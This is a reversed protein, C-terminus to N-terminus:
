TTKKTKLEHYLKDTNQKYLFYQITAVTNLGVSLIMGTLMATDWGVEVVTTGIRAVGGLLNSGTTIISQAGTHKVRHTELVQSGRSYVMIPWISALLLYRLGEDLIRTVAVIYLVGAVTALAREALTVKAFHWALLLVALSQISLAVNEGYATWPFRGLYGYLAANTKILVDGYLFSKSLGNASKSNYLNIMVPIQNLCSGLIILLGLTRSVLQSWCGGNMIPFAEVCLQADGGSWVWEALTMVWSLDLLLQM